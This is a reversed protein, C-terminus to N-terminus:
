SFSSYLPNNERPAFKRSYYTSPKLLIQEQNLFERNCSGFFRMHSVYQGFNANTFYKTVYILLVVDPVDSFSVVDM